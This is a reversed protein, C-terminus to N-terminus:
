KLIIQYRTKREKRDTRFDYFDFSISELFNQSFRFAVSVNINVYYLMFFCYAECNIKIFQM